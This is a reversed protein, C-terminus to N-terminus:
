CRKRRQWGCGALVVGTFALLFASPEPVATICLTFEGLGGDPMPSFGAAGARFDSKGLTGTIMGTDWQWKGTDPGQLILQDTHETSSIVTGSLTKVTITGMSVTRIATQTYTVDSIVTTDLSLDIFIDWAPPDAGVFPGLGGLTSLNLTGVTCATSWQWINLGSNFSGTTTWSVAQGADTRPGPLSYSFTKGAVDVQSTFRLQAADDPGFLSGILAGHLGQSEMMVETVEAGPSLGARCPAAAAALLAAAWCWTPLDRTM